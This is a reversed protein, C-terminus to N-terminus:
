ILGERRYWAATIRAGRALEVEAEFGFDSRAKRMTAQWYRYKMGEKMMERTVLPSTKTIKAYSELILGLSYIVPYPIKMKLARRGLAEEITRFIEESSYIKNDGLFYTQGVTVPNEAALIIGRVVDELHGASICFHNNITRFFTYLGGLSQPGYVLPLRVITVPLRDGLSGLFQEALLKSRGYHSVPHCPSEESLMSNKHSPGVAAISSTFLFRHPKIGSELFVEVLNKTGLLNVRYFTEPDPNMLVAALHYVHSYDSCAKYLSRKDELDARIITAGLDALPTIDDTPHVLCALERDRQRLARVLHRGIFGTAGTCLIREKGKM